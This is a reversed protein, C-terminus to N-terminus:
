KWRSEIFLESFAYGVTKVTRIPDIGLKHKLKKRLRSIEVDIVQEYNMNPEWLRNLLQKRTYVKGPTTMLFHLLRFQSPTLHLEQEGSFAKGSQGDLTLGGIVLVSQGDNSLPTSFFARISATLANPSPTFKIVNKTLCGLALDANETASLFIMARIPDSERIFAEVWSNQLPQDDGNVVILQPPCQEMQAYAETSESVLLCSYNDGTLVSMLRLNFENRLGIVFIQAV